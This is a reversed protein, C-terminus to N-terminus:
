IPTIKEEAIGIHSHADIFGPLIHMGRANIVKMHKDPAISKAIKVIKGEKILLDAYIPHQESEM